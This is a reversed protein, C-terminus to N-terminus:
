QIDDPMASSRKWGLRFKMSNMKVHTLIATATCCQHVRGCVVGSPALLVAPLLLRLLPRVMSRDNPRPPRDLKDGMDREADGERLERLGLPEARM